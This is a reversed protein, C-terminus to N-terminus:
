LSGDIINYPVIMDEFRFEGHSGGDQTAHMGHDSTIIIKGDWKSAIGEIYSDIVNIREMTKESFDGYDHGADDISHFHVTIFSAGRDLSEIAAEFIEDDITGNSNLDTHLSAEVETKLIQIDGEILISDKGEGLLEGFITPVLPERQKRSYIGNEGPPKGTFMAALGPNSVPKYVSLAKKAKDISGFFPAYGNKIAYEYQHYGLGDTIILIVNRDNSIFGKADYYVDMISAAVPDIVVGKLDSIKGDLSPDRYNFINGELEFYGNNDNSLFLYEGKSGMLIMNCSDPCDGPELFRDLNFIHRANYISTEFRKGGADKFSTGGYELFRSASLSVQGPTLYKINRDMSIINLGFDSERDELVVVIEKLQKINTSVPHNLNIAEWGNDSDLKLYSEELQDGSLRATRGDDAILYISYKNFAPEALSIVEELEIAKINKGNYDIKKLNQNLIEENIELPSGVDGTLYISPIHQDKGSNNGLIFYGGLLGAGLCLVAVLSIL